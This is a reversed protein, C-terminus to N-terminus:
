SVFDKVDDPTAEDIGKIGKHEQLYNEFKKVFGICSEIASKSRGHKRSFERFGKEDM